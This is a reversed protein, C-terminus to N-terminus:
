TQDDTVEEINVIMDGNKATRKFRVNRRQVDNMQDLIDQRKHDLLGLLEFATFGECESEITITDDLDNVTAILTFKKM